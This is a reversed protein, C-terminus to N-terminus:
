SSYQTASYVQPRGMVGILGAIIILLGGLYEAHGIVESTLWAASVAGAVIELLFIISSTQIPLHGVGYQATWTMILLFPFGLVLILLVANSNFTPIPEMSLILGVVSIAVVGLWASGLKLSWHVHGIRRITVNTTAFAVGATLAYFDALSPPTVFFAPHWLMVVAGTLALVLAIIGPVAIREKLVLWAMLMAWIPSLYFLLLVRVVEGELMALIFALNTWGAALALMLYNSKQQLFQRRLRWCPLIIPLMAVLYILLTAWLGPIGNKELLRLPFWLVGWLVAAVVCSFAPFLVASPQPFMASLMYKRPKQAFM